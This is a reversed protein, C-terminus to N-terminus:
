KRSNQLPRVVLHHTNGLFREPSKWLVSITKIYTKDCSLYPLNRIKNKFLNTQVSFIKFDNLKFILNKTIKSVHRKFSFDSYNWKFYIAFSIFTMLNISKFWKTSIKNFNLKKERLSSLNISTTIITVRLLTSTCLWSRLLDRQREM